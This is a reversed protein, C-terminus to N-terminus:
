GWEKVAFSVADGIGSYLAASGQARLTMANMEAGRRMSAARAVAENYVVESNIQENYLTMDARQKADKLTLLSRMSEDALYGMASLRETGVVYKRELDAAAVQSIMYQLPSGENVSIGSSATRARIEGGLQKVQYQLVQDTRKTKVGMLAYNRGAADLGAKANTFGTNLIASATHDAAHKSLKRNKRTLEMLDAANEGGIKKADAAQKKLDSARKMGGILSLGAGILNWM